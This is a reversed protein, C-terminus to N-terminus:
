GWMRRQSHLAMFAMEANPFILTLKRESEETAPVSWTYSGPDYEREEFPFAQKVANVADGFDHGGKIGFTYRGDHEELDVMKADDLPGYKKLRSWVSM